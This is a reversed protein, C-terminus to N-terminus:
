HHDGKEHVSRGLGANENKRNKDDGNKGERELQKLKDRRGGLMLNDIDIDLLSKQGKVSLRITKRKLIEPYEDVDKKDGEEIYANIKVKLEDDMFPKYEDFFSKWDGHVIEPHVYLKDSHVLKHATPNLPVLGVKLMFHLKTVEECVAWTRVWGGNEKHQRSAVVKTIDFLTFPHHHLEVGFGNKLSYDKYFACNEVNLENKMTKTFMRYEYSSRIGRVMYKIVNESLDTFKMENDPGDGEDIDLLLDKYEEKRKIIAKETNSIIKM